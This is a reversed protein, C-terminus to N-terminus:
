RLSPSQYTALCNLAADKAQFALERQEYTLRDFACGRLAVCATWLQAYCLEARLLKVLVSDEDHRRIHIAHWQDHWDVLDNM